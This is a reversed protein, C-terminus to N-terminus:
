EVQKITTNATNHYDPVLGVIDTLFTQYPFKVYFDSNGTEESFGPAEAVSPKDYWMVSM